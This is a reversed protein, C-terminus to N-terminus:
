PRAAWDAFRTRGAIFQGMPALGDKDLVAGFYKTDPDAVVKRADGVSSLFRQIFEAMGSAEPGALEVAGNEPQATAVEALTAAVDDAAVPQFKCPSMHVASGVTAGDAIAKLFEFFQTARLVTYPVGAAEILAEQMRKARLYGSDRIRDCGVVSLAVYHAVGAAKAASLLNGTSTRFFEMVANDEFSPSNTVDVVVNAGALAAELGEGTLSNVGTSPAAALVEHGASALKAALKRGILGTGGIIVVKM